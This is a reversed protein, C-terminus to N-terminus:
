LVFNVLASGDKKSVVIVRKVDIQNNKEGLLKTGLDSSRVANEIATVDNHVNGSIQIVGKTKGKLQVIVKCSNQTQCSKDEIPWSQLHVDKIKIDGAWALKQTPPTRLIEHKEAIKEWMEASFHPAIPSMMLVVPRLALLQQAPCLKESLILNTLKMLDAIAVNFACVDESFNRTVNKITTQVANYISSHLGDRMLNNETKENKQREQPEKSKVESLSSDSPLSRWLRDLWRSSGATAGSDWELQKEPPAKFLMAIRTVDAGFEAVMEDPDVGNYKSKSMKEWVKEVIEDNEFAENGDISYQKAEKPTLYRKSKKFRLTEGLVMGQAVLRSFPEQKPVLNKDFLFMNIFRAYLLHLIAHEVGGIYTSVPLWDRAAKPSWAENDNHADIYRAFYWSSDVFTDLTDTERTASGGCKPCICRKWENMATEDQRISNSSPLLVPLDNKPVSVPGCGHNCYIIPIPAGWHRQRSVLWDRLRYQTSKSGFGRNEAAAIIHQTAEDSDMGNFDGSSILIGKDTFM